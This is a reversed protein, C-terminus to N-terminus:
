PEVEADELRPAAPASQGCQRGTTLSHHGEQRRLCCGSLAGRGQLATERRDAVHVLDGIDGLGIPASAMLAVSEPIRREMPAAGTRLFAAVDSMTSPMAPVTPPSHRRCNRSRAIRSTPKAEAM